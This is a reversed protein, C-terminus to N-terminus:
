SPLWAAREGVVLIQRVVAKGPGHALDIPLPQGGLPTKGIAFLGIAAVLDTDLHIAILIKSAAHAPVLAGVM